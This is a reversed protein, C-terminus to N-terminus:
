YDGVAATVTAASATGDSTWLFVQITEAPDVLLGAEPLPLNFADIDTLDAAEITAVRRGGIIIQAIGKTKFVADPVLTLSLLRIGITQSYKFEIQPSDPKKTLTTSKRSIFAEYTKLGKLRQEQVQVRALEKGDRSMVAVQNAAVQKVFLGTIGEGILNGVVAAIVEGLVM